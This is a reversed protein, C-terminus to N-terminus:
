LKKIIGALKKESIDSRLSNEKFHTLSAKYGKKRIGSIIRDQKPMKGLRNRKVFSPIHYFGVTDIKSESRITELLRIGSSSKHMRSVLEEDWLRGLWMPGSESYCGHQKMSRDVREKGKKCKFFIRMYHDKSYSFVPLLSKDFQAGILQCKRILIRLGIEHMLENRLPLAWYKRLCAKPYTGSLASTDTATVAIIGGRSIRKVTSDLYPNPSGFPDIDIYDFGSSNLLFLNADHNSVNAKKEPINNLRLNGRIAEAAEVDYDNFSISKVKGRRLEKLFRIGRIGSGALPLAIQMNRKPASNLVLVSITRNLEMVPNYFVPMRRSVVKAKSINLKAKGETILAM